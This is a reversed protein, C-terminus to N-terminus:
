ERGLVEEPQTGVSAGAGRGFAGRRNGVTGGNAARSLTGNRGVTNARSLVTGSRNLGGARSDRGNDRSDYRSERGDEAVSLLNPAPRHGFPSMPRPSAAREPEDFTTNRERSNLSNDQLSTSRRAANSPQVNNPQQLERQRQPTIVQGIATGAVAGGLVGDAVSNRDRVSGTRSPPRNIITAAKTSPAKISPAKSPAKTSVDKNVIPPRISGADISERPMTPAISAQRPIMPAISEQHQVTPAKYSGAMSQRKNVPVNNMSANDPRNDQEYTTVIPIPKLGVYSRSPEDRM